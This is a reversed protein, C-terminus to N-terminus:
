FEQSRFLVNRGTFMEFEHPSCDNGRDVPINLTSYGIRSVALSKGLKTTPFGKLM